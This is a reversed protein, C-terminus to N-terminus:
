PYSSRFIRPNLVARAHFSSVRRRAALSSPRPHLRRTPCEPCTHDIAEELVYRVEAVAEAPSIGSGSTGHRPRVRAWAPRRPGADLRAGGIAGAEQLLSIAWRIAPRRERTILM